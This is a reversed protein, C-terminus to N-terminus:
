ASKPAPVRARGVRLDATSAVPRVMEMQNQTMYGLNRKLKPM